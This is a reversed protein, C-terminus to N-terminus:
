EVIVTGDLIDNPDGPICDEALTVLYIFTGPETFTYSFSSNITLVADFLGDDRTVIYNTTDENSWTVTTGATVTVLDPFLAGGIIIVENAGHTPTSAYGPILGAVIIVLAVVIATFILRKREGM